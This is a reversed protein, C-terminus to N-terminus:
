LYLPEGGIQCVRMFTFVHLPCECWNSHLIRKRLITKLLSFQNVLAGVLDLLYFIESYNLEQSILFVCNIFNFNWGCYSQVGGNTTFQSDSFLPSSWTTALEEEEKGWPPFGCTVLLSYRLGSLWFLMRLTWNSNAPVAHRSDYLLEHLWIASYDSTIIPYTITYIM